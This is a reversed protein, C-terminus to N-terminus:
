DQTKWLGRGAGRAEEEAHRFLELHRFPYAVYAHAFGERVMELNVFTGDRLYVYALTRRYRDTRTTDFEVRVSQGEVYSRLKAAAEVGFHQVPRRPDVTEPTDIGILRVTGLEELVLTDGDIV